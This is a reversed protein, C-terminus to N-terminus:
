RKFITDDVTFKNTIINELVYGIIYGVITVTIFSIVNKM